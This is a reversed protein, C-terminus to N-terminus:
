LDSASAMRTSKESHPVIGRACTLSLLMGKGDHNRQNRERFLTKITRVDWHEPVNGLWELGSDKYVPYPKFKRAFHNETECIVRM